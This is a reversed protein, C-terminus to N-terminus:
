RYNTEFEIPMFILTQFFKALNLSTTIFDANESIFKMLLLYNLVVIKIM